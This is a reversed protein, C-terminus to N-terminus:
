LKLAAGGKHAKVLDQLCVARTSIRVPAPLGGSTAAIHNLPSYLRHQEQLYPWRVKAYVRATTAIDAHGLTHQVAVLEEGANLSLTACTHRLIHPFVGTIGARRAVRAVMQRVGSDTLQTKRESPFLAKTELRDGRVHLWEGMDEKTHGDLPVRRVRDGKGHVVLHDSYVDEVNLGVIEGARLGCDVLLDIMAKDREPNRTQCAARLLELVHSHGLQSQRPDPQKPASVNQMPNHRVQKENLVWKVWTRIVRHSQHVTSTSLGQTKLSNRYRRLHQVLFRGWTTVGETDRLYSLLKELQYRYIRLTQDSNNGWAELFEEVLSDLPMDNGVSAARIVGERYEHLLPVLCTDTRTEAIRCAIEVVCLHLAHDPLEMARIQEIGSSPGIYQALLDILDDGPPLTASHILGLHQRLCSTLLMGNATM